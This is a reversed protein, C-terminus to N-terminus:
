RASVQRRGSLDGRLSPGNSRSVLSIGVRITVTDIVGM